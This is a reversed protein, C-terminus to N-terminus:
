LAVEFDGFQEDTIIIGGNGPIDQSGIIVGDEVVWRGGTQHKSAGSHGTKASVHWGSLTAGDFIPTFGAEGANLAGSFSILAAALLVPSNRTARSFTWALLDSTANM